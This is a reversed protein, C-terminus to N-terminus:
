DGGGCGGGGCGGGGGGDDGGACAGGGGGGDDTDVDKGGKKDDYDDGCKSGDKDYGGGYNPNGWGLFFYGGAGAGGILLITFGVCCVLGIILGM